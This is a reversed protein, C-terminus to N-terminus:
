KRIKRSKVYPSTHSIFASEKIKDAFEPHENLYRRLLKNNVNVVGPFDEKPIVKAIGTPDYSVMSRQVLGLEANEGKLASDIKRVNKSVAMNIKNERDLILKKKLKIEEWVSVLEEAEMREFPMFLLSDDEVVRKYGECYEKYDCWGCFQNVTPVMEEEELKGLSEYITDVYKEFRERHTDSRESVVETDLRLYDLVLKRNKYEPYLKSIALDYLSMQIDSAAEDPTMAVRSTKYDRIILTDNNVVTIKDIAGTLPTGKETTVTVNPGDGDNSSRTRGFCLEVALVEEKPDFLAMRESLLDLGTDMYELDYMSHSVCENLYIQIIHERHEDTLEEVGSQRLRGLEELASHVAIGMPLFQGSLVAEKKAYYRCYFKYKCQLFTKIGSASLSFLEM